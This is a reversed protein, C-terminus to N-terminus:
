IAYANFADMFEHRAQEPNWFQLKAGIAPDPVQWDRPPSVMNQEREDNLIGNDLKKIEPPVPWLFGFKAAIVKMLRDEIEAYGGIFPKIPRPMDVLYAESADHMLATLKLAFPAKDAVHVCHEAVSYFRLCHGAYRCAKSLANAIDEINVEEARPDLPYFEVGSYTQMWDGARTPNSAIRNAVIQDTTM